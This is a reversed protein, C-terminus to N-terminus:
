KKGKTPPAHSAMVLRLAKTAVQQGSRALGVVHVAAADANPFMADFQTPLIQVQWRNQPNTYVNKVMWGQQAATAAEESTLLDNM